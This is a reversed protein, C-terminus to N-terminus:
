QTPKKPKILHADNLIQNNRRRSQEEEKMEDFSFIALTGEVVSWFIASLWKLIGM